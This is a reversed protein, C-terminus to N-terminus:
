VSFRRIILLKLAAVLWGGFRQIVFQNSESDVECAQIILFSDVDFFERKRAIVKANEPM